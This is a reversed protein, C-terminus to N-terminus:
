DNNKWRLKILENYIESDVVLWGYWRKKITYGRGMRKAEKIASEWSFFM